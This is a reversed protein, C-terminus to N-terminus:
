QVERSAAQRQLTERIKTKFSDLDDSGVEPFFNRAGPAQMKTEATGDPRTSVKTKLRYCGQPGNSVSQWQAGYDKTFLLLQEGVGFHPIGPASLGLDGVIGGVQKIEIKKPADAQPSKMTDLVELVYTTWIQKGEFEYAASSSLVRAEVIQDAHDCMWDLSRVAYTAATSEAAIAVCALCLCRRLFSYKELNM